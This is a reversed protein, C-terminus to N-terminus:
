ARRTANECHCRATRKLIVVVRVKRKDEEGDDRERGDGGDILEERSMSFMDDRAMCDYEVFSREILSLCQVVFIGLL